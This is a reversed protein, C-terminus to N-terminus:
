FYRPNAASITKGFEYRLAVEHTGGVFTSINGLNYEYAYGLRFQQNVQFELIGVLVEEGLRWSAGLWLFDSIIFNGNLDILLPNNFSYRVLTSPKFKLGRTFSFLGGATGMFYYNEYDHYFEFGSRNSNERYSFMEPIAIGAFFLDSNYYVGVGVNPLTYSSIAETFAPDPEITTVGSYNNNVMDAGAKIGLSWRGNMTKIHFAYTAFVSAKTTVGYTQYHSLLGLAIRDNKMPSHLSFTGMMPAGEFNMTKRRFSLSATLVERTGTYAPNIVLGDLLYQSYVPYNQARTNLTSALLFFIIYSIIKKM